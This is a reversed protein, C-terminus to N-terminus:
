VSGPGPGPETDTRRLRVLAAAALLVGAALRVFWEGHRTYVSGGAYLTVDGVLFGRLNM